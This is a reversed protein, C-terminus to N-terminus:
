PSPLLIGIMKWRLVKRSLLPTCLLIAGLLPHKSSVAVKSVAAPKNDKDEDDKKGIPKCATTM